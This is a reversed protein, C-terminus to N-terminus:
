CFSSPSKPYRQAYMAMGEGVACFAATIDSSQITRICGQDSRLLHFPHPLHHVNFGSHQCESPLLRIRPADPLSKSLTTSIIIQPIDEPLNRKFFCGMSPGDPKTVTIWADSSARNNWVTISANATEPTSSEFFHGEM